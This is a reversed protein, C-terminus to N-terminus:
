VTCLLWPKQSPIKVSIRFYLTDDKLYQRNSAPNHSLESHSIFKPCGWSSGINANMEPLFNSTTSHHNIDELQNLLEFTVYGVFPWKLKDYDTGELIPAYTSVHSGKGTGNGNTDVRIKMHYGGLSTYFSQSYFIVNNDKKSQFETIKFTMSEGKGLISVRTKSPAEMKIIYDIAMNLHAKDDQEHDRMDNRKLKVDCGIRVCKCSIVTHECEEIFHNSMKMRQMKMTCGQNTCVIEKKKCTDYHNMTTAVVGKISTTCMRNAMIILCTARKIHGCSTFSNAMKIILCTARKIHGCSTFSNAM